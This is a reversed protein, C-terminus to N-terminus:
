KPQPPGEPAEEDEPAGPAAIDAPAGGPTVVEEATEEQGSQDESPADFPRGVTSFILMLIVGAVILAGVVLRLTGSRVDEGGEDRRKCMTNTRM